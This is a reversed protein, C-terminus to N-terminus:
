EPLILQPASIARFCPEPFAIFSMMSPDKALAVGHSQLLDCIVSLGLISRRVNTRAAMVVAEPAASEAAIRGL